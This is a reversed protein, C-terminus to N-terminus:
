GTPFDYSCQTYWQNQKKQTSNSLYFNFGPCLWHFEICAITLKSSVSPLLDGLPPTLPRHHPIWTSTSRKPQLCTITCTSSCKQIRRITFSNRRYMAHIVNRQNGNGHKRRFHYNRNASFLFPLSRANSCKLMPIIKEIKSFEWHPKNISSLWIKIPQAASMWSFQPSYQLSIPRYQFEHHSAFKCM